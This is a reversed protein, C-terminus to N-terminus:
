IGGSPPGAHVPVGSTSTPVVVACKRNPQHLPKGCWFPAGSRPISGRARAHCARINGVVGVPIFSKSHAELITGRGPNSGPDGRGCRPTRVVLSYSGNSRSILAHALPRTTHNERRTPSTPPEIGEQGWKQFAGVEEGGRHVLFPVLPNSGSVVPDAIRHEAM